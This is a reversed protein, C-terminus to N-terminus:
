LHELDMRRNTGLLSTSFKALRQLLDSISTNRPLYLILNSSYTLAKEIVLDFDPYIHELMYEDLAQYGSGGWPPSLFVADIQSGLDSPLKL